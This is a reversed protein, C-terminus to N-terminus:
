AADKRSLIVLFALKRFVAAALASGGPLDLLRALPARRPVDRLRFRVYEAEGPENRFNREFARFIETRARYHTYADIWALKDAAWQRANPAQEKWTGLGLARLAWTYGFRLSSGRPLRHAFPIGIHGERWVDRAPFLSLALGGVRLVRRIEALARDLDAVHEMVQNNVVLDFSADHFPLRGGAIEGIATGLLGASQAEARDNSGGYYLDAGRIRLGADLGARVLRGAGCGFDLIEAGPHAAAFRLAFDLVYRNTIDM